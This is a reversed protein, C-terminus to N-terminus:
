HVFTYLTNGETQLGGGERVYKVRLAGISTGPWAGVSTGPCEYSYHRMRLLVHNLLPLPSSHTVAFMVWGEVGEQKRIDWDTYGDACSYVEMIM